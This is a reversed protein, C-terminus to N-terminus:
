LLQKKEANFGVLWKNAWAVTEQQASEPESALELKECLNSAPGCKFYLIKNDDYLFRLMLQINKHLTGM